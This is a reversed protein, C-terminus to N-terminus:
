MRLPRSQILRKGTPRDAAKQGPRTFDAEPLYQQLLRKPTAISFEWLRQHAERAALHPVM